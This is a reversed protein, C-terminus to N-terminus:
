GACRECCRLMAVEGFAVSWKSSIEVQKGVVKEDEREERGRMVEIWCEVGDEGGFIVLAERGINVYETVSGELAFKWDRFMSDFDYHVAECRSYSLSSRRLNNAVSHQYRTFSVVTFPFCLPPLEGLDLARPREINVQSTEWNVQSTEWSAESRVSEFFAWFAWFFHCVTWICVKVICLFPPSLYSLCFEPGGCLGM